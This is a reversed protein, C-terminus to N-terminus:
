RPLWGLLNKTVRCRRPKTIRARSSLKAKTAAAHPLSVLFLVPEPALPEVRSTDWPKEWGALTLIGAILGATCVLVGSLLALLRSGKV